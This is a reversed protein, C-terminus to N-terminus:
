CGDADVYKSCYQACTGDRNNARYESLSAGSILYYQTYIAMAETSVCHGRVQDDFEDREWCLIHGPPNGCIIGDDDGGGDGGAGGDGGTNPGGSDGGPWM